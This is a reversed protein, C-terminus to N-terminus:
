NGGGGSMHDCNHWNQENEGSESQKPKVTKLIHNRRFPAKESAPIANRMKPIKRKKV